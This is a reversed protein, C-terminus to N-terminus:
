SSAHRVHLGQILSPRLWSFYPDGLHARMQHLNDPLTVHDVQESYVKDEAAFLADALFQPLLFQKRHIWNELETRESESLSEYRRLLEEAVAFEALRKAITTNWFFLAGELDLFYDTPGSSDDSPQTMFQYFDDDSEVIKFGISQLLTNFKAINM